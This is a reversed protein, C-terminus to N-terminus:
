SKSLGKTKSGRKQNPKVKKMLDFLKRINNLGKIGGICENAQTKSVKACVFSYENGEDLIIMFQGSNKYDHINYDTVEVVESAGKNIKKLDSNAEYTQFNFYLLKGVVDEDSATVKIIDRQQRKKKTGTRRGIRKRKKLKSVKGVAKKLEMQAKGHPGKKKAITAVLKIFRTVM